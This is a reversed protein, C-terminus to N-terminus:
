FVVFHTAHAAKALVYPMLSIVGYAAAAALGALVSLLYRGLFFILGVTVLNIVILGLHIGATTDGFISMLLAYSAATGPFKMSYALKYPPIGHLLLQGTYAYEGEDRELPSGLLRSRAAVSLGIVLACLSWMVVRLAASDKTKEFRM